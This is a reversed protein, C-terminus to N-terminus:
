KLIAFVNFKHKFPWLLQTSHRIKVQKVKKCGVSKGVGMYQKILGEYMKHICACALAQIEAGAFLQTQSNSHTQIIFCLTATIKWSKFDLDRM